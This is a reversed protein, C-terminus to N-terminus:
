NNHDVKDFAASVDLLGLLTVQGSDAALLVDSIVNLMATETSHGRRYASQPGLMLRHLHAVLQRCVLKEVIKSMFTLNSIPRYNKVDTQDAGPKKLHPTVIAHRQSVPLCGEALSANCMDVIFPLLESLFEKMVHTPLPDLSCSKTATASIIKRIAEATYPEFKNFVAPSEVPVDDTAQRVSAVKDNFFRMLDDATPHNQSPKKETSKGLLKAM